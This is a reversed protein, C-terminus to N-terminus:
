LGLIGDLDPVVLIRTDVQFVGRVAAYNLALRRTVARCEDLATFQSIEGLAPVAVINSHRACRLFLLRRAICYDTSGLGLAAALDLVPLTRSNWSILGLQHPLDPPSPVFPEATLMGVVQRVSVAAALDPGVGRSPLGFLVLGTVASFGPFEQGFVQKDTDLNLTNM